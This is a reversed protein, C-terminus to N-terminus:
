LSVRGNLFPLWRDIVPVLLFILVSANAWLFFRLWGKEGGSRYFVFFEWMLKFACPVLLFLYFHGATVFLPSALALAVYLLAYLGTHYLTRERGVILPLVPIGGLEYDQMFRLALAWFHPMQWLFMVLFLYVCETSFIEGGVVSYGIVM